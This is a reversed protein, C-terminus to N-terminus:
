AGYALCRARLAAASFVTNGARMQQRGDMM